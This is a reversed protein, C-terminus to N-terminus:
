FQRLEPVLLLQLLSYKFLQMIILIMWGDM